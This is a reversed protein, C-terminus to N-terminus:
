PDPTSDWLDLPLNAEKGSFRSCPKRLYIGDAAQARIILQFAGRDPRPFARDAPLLREPQNSLQRIRYRVNWRQLIEEITANSPPLPRRALEEHIATASALAERRRRQEEVLIAMEYASVHRTEPVYNEPMPM